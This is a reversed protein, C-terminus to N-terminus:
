RVVTLERLQRLSDLAQEPSQDPKTLDLIREGMSDIKNWFQQAVMALMVTDKFLINEGDGGTMKVISLRRKVQEFFETLKVPDIDKDEHKNPFVTIKSM